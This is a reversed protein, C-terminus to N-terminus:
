RPALVEKIPRGPFHRFGKDWLIPIPNNDDRLNGTLALLTPVFSLSDYPEEIVAGRPVGTKDGGAFMLTSHTSIRLFSGHNGGPNFGRVDFNWHDSAVALIDAEINERQRRLLRRLLREDSSIGPEEVLRGVMHRALQEHLGILGNSYRTQHLAELWELDTHWRNLWEERSQGQAAAPLKLQPDEFIQLPFGPQWSSSEFHLHGAEDETLNKIPLYRFSLQGSRDERALILAQEPGSSVWVVDSAIETDTILPRVLEAPIRVALLDVPHNSVRAQVNNRVTLNHLLSFYDVHVFSKDMDLAGDPRMVLGGPAIGAVYNQLQHITNHAGMSRLPILDAIKMASPNFNERRLALLNVATRTYESYSRERALWIDEWVCVRKAEDDLGASSEEKTFKKPQAACLSRQREIARHLAALEENV